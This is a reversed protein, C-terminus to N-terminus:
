LAIKENKVARAYALATKPTTIINTRGDTKGDTQRDCAHITVFSFSASCINKYWVFPCDSQLELVLLPQHIVGGERQFIREFYGVGKSFRRSRNGSM